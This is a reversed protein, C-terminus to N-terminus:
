RLLWRFSGNGFDCTIKFNDEITSHGFKCIQGNSPRRSGAIFRPSSCGFPRTRESNQKAIGADALRLLHPLVRPM